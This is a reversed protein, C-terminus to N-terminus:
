KQDAAPQNLAPVITRKPSEDSPTQSPRTNAPPSGLSSYTRIFSGVWFVCAWFFVSLFVFVMYKFYPSRGAPKTKPVAVAKPKLPPPANIKKEPFPIVNGQHAGDRKQTVLEKKELDAVRQYMSDLECLLEEDSATDDRM